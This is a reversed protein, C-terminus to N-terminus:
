RVMLLNMKKNKHKISQLKRIFEKNVDELMLQKCQIPDIGKEKYRNYSSNFHENIANYTKLAKEEQTDPMQSMQEISKRKEIFTNLLVANILIPSAQEQLASQFKCSLYHMVPRGINEVSGEQDLLIIMNRASTTDTAYIFGNLAVLISLNISIIKM